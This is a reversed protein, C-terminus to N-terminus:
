AVPSGVAAKLRDIMKDATKAYEKEYKAILEERPTDKGKAQGEWLVSLTAFAPLDLGLANFFNALSAIVSQAGDSDGSIVIGAAKGELGSPEGTMVHDHLEDLREVVRQMLSSMNNWWIPTAFIVIQAALISELVSPWEDGDGMNSYTGPPVDLTALRVIDVDIGKARMKDALFESLTQTNSLGEKKLTALLVLAKM